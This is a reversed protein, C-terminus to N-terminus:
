QAFRHLLNHTLGISGACYLHIEASATLSQHHRAEGIRQEQFYNFRHSIRRPTAHIAPLPEVLGDYGIAQPYMM